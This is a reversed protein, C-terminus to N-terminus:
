FCDNPMPLGRCCNTKTSTEISHFAHLLKRITLNYAVCNRARRQILSNQLLASSGKPEIIPAFPVMALLIKTVQRQHSRHKPVPEKHFTICHHLPAHDRIILIALAVIESKTSTVSCNALLHNLMPPIYPAQSRWVLLVPRKELGYEDSSM